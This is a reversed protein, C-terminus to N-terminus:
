FPPTTRKPSRGSRCRCCTEASIDTATTRLAIPRSLDPERTLDITIKQTSLSCGAWRVTGDTGPENALQRVGGYSETGCFIFVYPTDPGKGFFPKEGLFDRHTLDWTFRSGLELGDLILDGAEMFDPGSVKNVKFIAGIFGRGKHALPSGFTAPALGILHKLRRLGIPNTTLWSRLVLMGTSHVIAGFPQDKDIRSHTRLARDFGEAIDKITIENTLSQYNCVPLEEVSLRTKQPRGAV